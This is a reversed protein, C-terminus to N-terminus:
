SCSSVRWAALVRLVGRQQLDAQIKSTEKSKGVAWSKACLLRAMAMVMMMMVLPPPPPDEVLVHPSVSSSMKMAAMTQPVDQEM